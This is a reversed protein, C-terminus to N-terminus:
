DILRGRDSPDAGKLPVSHLNFFYSIARDNLSSYAVKYLKYLYAVILVMKSQLDIIMKM